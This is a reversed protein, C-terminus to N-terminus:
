PKWRFGSTSRGDFLDLAAVDEETAVDSGDVALLEVLEIHFEHPIGAERLIDAVTEDTVDGSGLETFIGLLDGQQKTALILEEDSIGRQHAYRILRLRRLSDAAFSDPGARQLLGAEAYWSLREASEHSAAILRDISWPDSMPEREMAAGRGPSPTGIAHNRVYTRSDLNQLIPDLHTWELTRGGM